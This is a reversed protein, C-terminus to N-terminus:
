SWDLIRALVTEGPEVAETEAPIEVLADALALGSLMHSGQGAALEAKLTEGDLELSGRLWTLRGSAQKVARDLRAPVELGSPAAAGAM